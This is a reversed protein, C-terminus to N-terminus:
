VAVGVDDRGRRIGNSDIQLEEGTNLMLVETYLRKSMNCSASVSRTGSRSARRRAKEKEEHEDEDLVRRVDSASWKKM